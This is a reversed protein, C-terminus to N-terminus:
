LSLTLRFSTISQGYITQTNAIFDLKELANMLKLNQVNEAVLVIETAELKQARLILGLYINSLLKAFSTNLNQSSSGISKNITNVLPISVVLSQNHLRTSLDYSGLNHSQYAFGSQNKIRHIQYYDQNEIRSRMRNALLGIRSHHVELEQVETIFDVSPTYTEQASPIKKTNFIKFIFNCPYVQSTMILLLVITFPKM